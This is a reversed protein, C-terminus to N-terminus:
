DIKLLDISFMLSLIDVTKTERKGTSLVTNSSTIHLNLLTISGWTLCYIQVCIMLM